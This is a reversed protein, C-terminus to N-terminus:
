AHALLEQRVLKAPISTFHPDRHLLLADREAATAAILADVLPLRARSAARLRNANLVIPLTVPIVESAITTLKAWAPEFAAEAGEARLRSWLEAASLVTLGVAVREDFLIEGVREAGPEGFYFALLASSDLLVM